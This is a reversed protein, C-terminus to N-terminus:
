VVVFVLQFVVTFPYEASFTLLLLLSGNRRPFPPHAPCKIPVSQSIWM